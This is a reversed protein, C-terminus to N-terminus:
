SQDGAPARKGHPVQASDANRNCSRGNRVHHFRQRRGGIEKMDRDLGKGMVDALSAPLRYKGCRRIALQIEDM